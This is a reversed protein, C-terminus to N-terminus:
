LNGMLQRTSLSCYIKIVAGKNTFIYTAAGTSIKITSEEGPFNDENVTQGSSAANTPKSLTKSKGISSPQQSVELNKSSPVEALQKEMEFQSLPPGEFYKPSPKKKIRTYSINIHVKDPKPSTALNFTISPPLSSM